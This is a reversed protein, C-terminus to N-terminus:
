PQPGRGIDGRLECRASGSKRDRIQVMTRSATCRADTRPPRCHQAHPLQGGALLGVVEVRDGAPDLVVVQTTLHRALPDCAAAPQEPQGAYDLRGVKVKDQRATVRRIRCPEALWVLHGPEIEGEPRRFGHGHQEPETIRVRGAGHALRMVPRDLGGELEGLAV